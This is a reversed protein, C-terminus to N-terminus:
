IKIYGIIIIIRMKLIVIYTYSTYKQEFNQSTKYGIDHNKCIHSQVRILTIRTFFFDSAMSM